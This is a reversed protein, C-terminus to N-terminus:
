DRSILLCRYGQVIFFTFEGNKSIALTKFSAAGQQIGGNHTLPITRDRHFSCPQRLVPTRFQILRPLSEAESGGFFSHHHKNERRENETEHCLTIPVRM